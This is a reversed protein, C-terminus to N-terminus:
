SAALLEVSKDHAVVLNHVFVTEHVLWDVKRNIINWDKALARQGETTLLALEQETLSHNNLHDPYEINRIDM